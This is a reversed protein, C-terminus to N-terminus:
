TEMQTQPEEEEGWDIRAADSRDLVQPGRGKTFYDWAWEIFADIRNRVGSMLYAHVGLWAAFAVPGHLEHRHEGIEAIAANRGIMAMFGKDHYHFPWHAVNRLESLIHDGTWTGCQLAV